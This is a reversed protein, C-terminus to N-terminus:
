AYMCADEGYKEELEKRRKEREEERKLDRKVAKKSPLTLAYRGDSEREQM